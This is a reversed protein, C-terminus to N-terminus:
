YGTLDPIGFSSNRLLKGTRSESRRTPKYKKYPIFLLIALVDCNTSRSTKSLQQINIHSVQIKWPTIILLYETNKLYLVKFIIHLENKSQSLM